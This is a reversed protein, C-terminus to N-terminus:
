HHDFQSLKANGQQQSYACGRCHDITGANGCRHLDRYHSLQVGQWVDKITDGKLVNGLVFDQTHERIPQGCPIINGDVDIIPILWLHDCAFGDISVGHKKCTSVFEDRDSPSEFVSMDIMNQYTIVNVKDKWREFYAEREHENDKTRVFSVRVRIDPRNLKKRLDLFANVNDVVKSLKSGGPRVVSYVDESVADMSVNLKTLGAEILSLSRKPTLAQGNTHLFIDIVGADRADSMMHELEPNLLSEGEHDMMMSPLYEKRIESKIKEWVEPIM